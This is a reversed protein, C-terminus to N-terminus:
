SLCKLLRKIRFNNLGYYVRIVSVYKHYKNFIHYDKIFDTEDLESCYENKFNVYTSIKLVAYEM